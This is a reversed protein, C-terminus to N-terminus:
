LLHAHEALWVDDLTQVRRSQGRIDLFVPESDRKELEKIISDIEQVTRKMVRLVGIDISDGPHRTTAAMHACSFDLLNVLVAAHLGASFGAPTECNTVLQNANNCPPIAESLSGVLAEFQKFLKLQGMSKRVLPIDGVTKYSRGMCDLMKRLDNIGGKRPFRWAYKLACGVWMHFSHISEDLEVGHIPAYREANEAAEHTM